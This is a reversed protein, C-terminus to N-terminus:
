TILGMKLLTDAAREQNQRERQARNFEAISPLSQRQRVSPIRRELDLAARDLVRPAREVRGSVSPQGRLGEADSGGRGVM